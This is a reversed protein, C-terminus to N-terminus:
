ELYKLPQRLELLGCLHHSYAALLARLNQLYFGLSSYGSGIFYVTRVTKNMNIQLLVIVNGIEISRSLIKM